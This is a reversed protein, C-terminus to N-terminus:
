GCGTVSWRRATACWTACGDSSPRPSSAPGCCGTNWCSPSGPPTPWTPRRGPVNKMHAANVLSLEFDHELAAFVPIWYVGTAELAVHTVAHSGLWAGMARLEATTTAWTRTESARGRGTAKPTRVCATVQDRHVDLGAVRELLLDM